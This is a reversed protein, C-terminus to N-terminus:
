RRTPKWKVHGPGNWGASGTGSDYSNVEGSLTLYHTGDPHRNDAIAWTGKPMKRVGRNEVRGDFFLVLNSPKLRALSVFPNPGDELFSNMKYSRSELDDVTPCHFLEPVSTKGPLVRYWACGHPPSSNGNDEHPLLGKNRKAYMFVLFSIQRLQSSCAVGQAQRQISFALPLILSLLISIIVIVVLLEM